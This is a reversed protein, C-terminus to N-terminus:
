PAEEKDKPGQGAIQILAEFATRVNPYKKEFSDFNQKLIDAGKSLGYRRVAEIGRARDLHEVYALITRAAEQDLVSGQDLLEVLAEETLDVEDKSYKNLWARARMKSTM